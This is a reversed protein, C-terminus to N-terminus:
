AYTGDGKINKGFITNTDQVQWIDKGTNFGRVDNDAIFTNETTHSYYGVVIGAIALETIGLRITNNTLRSNNNGYCALNAGSANGVYNGELYCGTVLTDDCLNHVWIGYAGNNCLVCNSVNTKCHRILYIGSSVNNNCTCESIIIPLSASYFTDYDAYWNDGLGYTTYFKMGHLENNDCICNKITLQGENCGNVVLGSGSVGDNTKKRNNSFVCGEVVGKMHSTIVLGIENEYSLCNSVICNEGAGLSIGSDENNRFVSDRLILNSINTYFGIANREFICNEVTLNKSLIDSTKASVLGYAASNSM